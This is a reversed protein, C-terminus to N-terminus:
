DHLRPATRIRRAWGTGRGPPRPTSCRCGTRTGCWRPRAQPSTCAPPRPAGWPSRAWVRSSSSSSAPSWRPTSAGPADGASRGGTLPRCLVESRRPPGHLARPHSARRALGYSSRIMCPSRRALARDAHAGEALSPPRGPGMPRDHGCLHHQAFPRKRLKRRATIAPGAGVPTTRTRSGPCRGTRRTRRCSITLPM